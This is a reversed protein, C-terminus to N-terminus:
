EIMAGNCVTKRSEDTFQPNPGILGLNVKFIELCEQAWSEVDVRELLGPIEIGIEDNDQSAQVKHLPFFSCEMFIIALSIFMPISIISRMKQMMSKIVAM